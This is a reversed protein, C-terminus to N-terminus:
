SARVDERGHKRIPVPRIWLSAGEPQLAKDVTTIMAMSLAQIDVEDRAAAAFQALAQEADYKSRYFRRDIFDQTRVRLRGFLAAIVLTSIVTVITANKDGTLRGFLEQLVVVAGFYTVALLATLIAYQLTRRIIVDIDFLRYRSIGIGLMAGMLTTGISSIIAFTDDKILALGSTNLVVMVTFTGLGAMIGGVGWRIQARSVPDRMTFANRILLVVGVLLSFVFWIWSYYQSPFIAVLLFGIGGAAFPLWPFRLQVSSPKPFVMAFRIFAFSFVSTLLVNSVVVQLFSAGPDIWSTFGSPLLESLSGGAFLATVILFPGASLNDPRRLFVVLALVFLFWNSLLGALTVPYLFQNGAWAGLDWHKLTVPVTMEQGDRVLTYDIVAGARWIEQLSDTGYVTLWDARIGNIATVHDGPQLPSPSESLNRLYVLGTEVAESVEWGDTPLSFRYALDVLSFAMIGLILIVQLRAALTFRFSTKTEKKMTKRVLYSL